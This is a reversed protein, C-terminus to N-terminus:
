WWCRSRRYELRVRRGRIGGLSWCGIEGRTLHTKQLCVRDIIGQQHNRRNIIIHMWKGIPDGFDLTITLPFGDIAVPLPHGRTLRLTLLFLRVAHYCRRLFRPYFCTSVIIYYKVHLTIQFIEVPVSLDTNFILLSSYNNRWDISMDAIKGLTHSRNSINVAMLNPPRFTITFPPENILSAFQHYGQFIKSDALEVM